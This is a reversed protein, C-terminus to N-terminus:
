VFFFFCRQQISNNNNNNNNKPYSLRQMLQSCERQRSRSVKM